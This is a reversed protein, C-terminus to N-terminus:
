AAQETPVRRQVLVQTDAPVKVTLPTLGNVRASAQMLTRGDCIMQQPDDELRANWAVLLDGKRLERADIYKRTM